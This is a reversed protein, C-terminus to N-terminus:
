IVIDSKKKGRLETMPKNQTKICLIQAKQAETTCYIFPVSLNWHRPSKDYENGHYKLKKSTQLPFFIM